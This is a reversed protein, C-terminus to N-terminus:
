PKKRWLFATWVALAIFVLCVPIMGWLKAYIDVYLFIANGLASLVWGVWWRKAILAQGSISIACGVWDMHFLPLSM